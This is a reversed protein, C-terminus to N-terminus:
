LGHGCTAPESQASLCLAPLARYQDRIAAVTDRQFRALLDEIEVEGGLLISRPDAQGRRESHNLQVTTCDVEDTFRTLACCESQTKGFHDCRRRCCSLDSDHLM